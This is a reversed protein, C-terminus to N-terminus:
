GAVRLEGGALGALGFPLQHLAGGFTRALTDAAFVTEVPGFAVLSRNILAAQDCFEPVSALNHTSVLILHGAGRLGALIETIARETKIDVGTFPEDLLIIRAEQALARALFVRKRQGGSLEGIQRRAFDQMGVRELSHAVAQRDAASPIRLFGMRGQRGMMVVDHVSVPFSWDVEETQPVYAVINAKQAWAVPRGCIAVSGAVPTVFGMIAKFLTSKGSGNMGILACISPRDLTLSVDSLAVNGARYRVTVGSVAISPAENASM